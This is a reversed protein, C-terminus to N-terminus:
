SYHIVTKLLDSYVSFINSTIIYKSENKEQYLWIFRNIHNISDGIIDQLESYEDSYRISQILEINDKIQNIYVNFDESRYDYNKLMIYIEEVCERLTKIQNSTQREELTLPEIYNIKEKLTSELQEIRKTLLYVMHEYESRKVYYNRSLLRNIRNSLSLTRFFVILVAFCVLYILM